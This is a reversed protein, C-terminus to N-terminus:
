NYVTAPANVLTTPYKIKLNAQITFGVHSINEITRPYYLIRAEITNFVLNENRIRLAASIGTFLDAKHIVQFDKILYSAEARLSTAINFGIFKWPTFVIIDYRSNFRMNGVLSDARFNTIGNVDNIDLARKEKQNFLQAFGLDAQHRIKNKGNL